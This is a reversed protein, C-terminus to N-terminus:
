LYSAGVVRASCWFGIHLSSGATSRDEEPDIAENSPQLKFKPM